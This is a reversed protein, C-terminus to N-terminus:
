LLLAAMGTYAPTGAFLGLVLLLIGVFFLVAGIVQLITSLPPPLPAWYGIAWLIAGIIVFALWSM